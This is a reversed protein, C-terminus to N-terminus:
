GLTLKLKFDFNLGFELSARKIEKYANRSTVGAVNKKKEVCALFFLLFCDVQM